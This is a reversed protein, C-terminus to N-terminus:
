TKRCSEAALRWAAATRADRIVVGTGYDGSNAPLPDQALHPRYRDRILRPKLPTVADAAEEIWLVSRGAGLLRQLIATAHRTPVGFRAGRANPGIPRLGLLQAVRADAAAYFEFFCGVQFLLVDQRYRARYARYQRAVSTAGDPPLYRRELRLRVWDLVFYEALWAHDRWLSQWLTRAHARQSHGLYSALSGHLTDIIERTFRYRDHGRGPHVLAARAAHLKDKLAGVVRRRVLRYDGRVIYGLWDVGDAVPRLRERQPNLELALREGLVCGIRDRWDRLQGPDESLLVFDDCYRLYHRCKLEHKVFQDLVNLYVNAFFQSNLNGIPLGKDKPAHFLTKHPPMRALLGPDGKIVYRETCDHFVLVQTLWLADPDSIKPALLEMLITKDISMFYNHIDLQLYWAPRHGNATIQRIGRALRDVGAHVGKGKRCAYSDHIFIPEWIKELYDILVHHVVRDAFDAAFIERLKPKQVFFCVSRAPRYTRDRLAAQLDFLNKEQEVEFRLANQTNRKNRRCNLYQRHLNEFSFLV